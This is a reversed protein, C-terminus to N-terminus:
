PHVLLRRYDRATRTADAAPQYDPEELKTVVDHHGPAAALGDIRRHGFESRHAVHGAVGAIHAAEVGVPRYPVLSRRAEAAHVHPDVIGGDRGVAHQETLQRGVLNSRREVGVEGTSTPASLGPITGVSRNSYEELERSAASHARARRIIFM